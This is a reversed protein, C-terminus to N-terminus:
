LMGLMAAASSNSVQGPSEEVNLAEVKGDRILMSFRKSRMGLGGATLDIALGLASAYAADWDAIMTVRGKSALAKEWASMVHHDNASLVYVAEVGRGRLADANELYGPVHNNSCTPTFAGPLGILVVTGTGLIDTAEVDQPGDAGIIRLKGAPITDGAAITM